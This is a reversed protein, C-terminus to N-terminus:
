PQQSQKLLLSLLASESQQQQNAALLHFLSQADKPDEQKRPRAAEQSKPPEFPIISPIHQTPLNARLPQQAELLSLLQPLSPNGSQNNSTQFNQFSM